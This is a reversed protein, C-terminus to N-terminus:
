PFQGECVNDLHKEAQRMYRGVRSQLTRKQKSFEVPDTKRLERAIVKRATNFVWDDTKYSPDKKARAKRKPYERKAICKAIEWNDGVKGDGQNETNTLDDGDLLPRGKLEYVMLAYRIGEPQPRTTEGSTAKSLSYLPETVRGTEDQKYGFLTKWNKKWWADFKTDPNCIVEPDGWGEYKSWDVERSRDNGAHQLFRFWYVYILKRSSIWLGSNKDYRKWRSTKM